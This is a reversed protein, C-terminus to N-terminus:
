NSTTAGLQATSATARRFSSLRKRMAKIYRRPSADPGKQHLLRIVWVLVSGQVAVDSTALTLVLYGDEMLM